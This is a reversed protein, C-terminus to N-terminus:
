LEGKLDILVLLTKEGKNTLTNDENLFNLDKLIDIPKSSLELDEENYSRSIDQKFLVHYTFISCDPNYKRDIIGEGFRSQEKYFNSSKKIRVHDGIKLM